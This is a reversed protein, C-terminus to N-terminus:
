KHDRLAREKPRGTILLFTEVEAPLDTEKTTELEVHYKGPKLAITTIARDLGFMEVDTSIVEDLLSTKSSEADFKEIKIHVPM